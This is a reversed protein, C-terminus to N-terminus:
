RFIIRAIWPIVKISFAILFTIIGFKFSKRSLKWISNRATKLKRIAKEGGPRKLIISLISILVLALLLQSGILTLAVGLILFLFSFWGGAKYLVNLLCCAGTKNTINDSTVSGYPCEENKWGKSMERPGIVTDPVCRPDIDSLDM